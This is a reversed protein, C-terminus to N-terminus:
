RHREHSKGATTNFQQSLAQAQRARWEWPPMPSTAGWLGLGASKAASEASAYAARYEVAQEHAYRVFHWAM